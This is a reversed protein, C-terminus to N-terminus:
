DQWAEPCLLLQPHCFNILFMLLKVSFVQSLQFPLREAQLIEGLSGKHSFTAAALYTRDRHSQLSHERLSSIPSPKPTGGPSLPLRKRQGGAM